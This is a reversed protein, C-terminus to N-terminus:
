TMHRPGTVSISHHILALVQRRPTPPCRRSNTYCADDVVAVNQWRLNTSCIHRVGGNVDWERNNRVRNAIREEKLKLLAIWMPWPCLNYTSVRLKPSHMYDTVCTFTFCVCVAHGNRDWVRKYSFVCVCCCCCCCCCLMVPLVFWEFYNENRRRLKRLSDIRRRNPLLCDYAILLLNSCSTFLNCDCLITSFMLRKKHVECNGNHHTFVIM